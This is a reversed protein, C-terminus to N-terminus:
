PVLFVVNNVTIQMIVTKQVHHVNMQCACLIKVM